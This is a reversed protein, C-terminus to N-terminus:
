KVFAKTTLESGNSITLQYVGSPLKTVSYVRSVKETNKEMVFNMIRQGKVDTIMVELDGNFSSEFTFNLDDQIPNPYIDLEGLDNIDCLGEDANKVFTVYENDFIYNIVGCQVFHINAEAYLDNVIALEDFVDSSDIALAGNSAGIIHIKVPVDAAATRTKVFTQSRQKQVFDYTSSQEVITTGCDDNTQSFSFFPFSLFIIFIFIRTIM